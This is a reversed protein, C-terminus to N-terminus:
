DLYKELESDDTLEECPQIDRRLEFTEKEHIGQFMSVVVGEASGM